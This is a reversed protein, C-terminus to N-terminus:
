REAESLLRHRVDPPENAAALLAEFSIKTAQVQPATDARYSQAALRPPQALYARLADVSAGLADALRQLFKQPVSALDVQRDRFGTLTASRVGLRTRVAAYAQPTLSQFPDVTAADLRRRLRGVAEGLWREDRPASSSATPVAPTLTLTTFLDLLAGAHEPYRKLYLELTQRDQAPEALFDDLVKDEQKEIASTM